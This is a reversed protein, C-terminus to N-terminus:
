DSVTLYANVEQLRLRVVDASQVFDKKRVANYYSEFLKAKFPSPHLSANLKFIATDTYKDDPRIFVHLFSDTVKDLTRLHFRDNLNVVMGQTRLEMTPEFTLWSDQTTESLNVHYCGYEQSMTVRDVTLYKGSFMHKLQIPMGYTVKSGIKLALAQDNEAQEKMKRIRLLELDNDLKAMEERM